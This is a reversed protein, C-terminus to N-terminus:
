LKMNFMKILSKKSITNTTVEAIKLVVNDFASGRVM